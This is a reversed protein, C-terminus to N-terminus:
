SCTRIKTLQVRGLQVPSSTIFALVEFYMPQPRIARSMRPKMAKIIQNKLM